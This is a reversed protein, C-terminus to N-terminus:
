KTPLKGLKVLMYYYQSYIQTSYESKLEKQYTTTEGCLICHFLYEMRKRLEAQQMKRLGEKRQTSRCLGGFIYLHLAWIGRDQSLQISPVALFQIVQNIETLGATRKILNHFYHKRAQSSQLDTTHHCYTELFRTFSEHIRAHEVKLYLSCTWILPLGVGVARILLGRAVEAPARLILVQRAGHSRARCVLVPAAETLGSAFRQIRQLRSASNAVSQSRATKATPFPSATHSVCHTQTHYPLPPWLAHQQCSIGTFIVPFAPQM